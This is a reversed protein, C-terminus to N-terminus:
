HFMAADKDLSKYLPNHVMLNFGLLMTFLLFAFFRSGYITLIGGVVELAAVGYVVTASHEIMVDKLPLHMLGLDKHLFNDFEKLSGETMKIVGSPDQFKDVGAGIFVLVILLRAVYVSLGM